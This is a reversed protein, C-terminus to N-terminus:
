DLIIWGLRQGAHEVFEVPHGELHSNRLAKCENLAGFGQRPHIQNQPAHARGFVFGQRQAVLQRAGLIIDRRAPCPKALVVGCDREM